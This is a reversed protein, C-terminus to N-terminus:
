GEYLNFHWQVDFKDTLTAYCKSWFTKQPEMGVDGGTKLGDFWQRIKEESDTTVMLDIDNGKIFVAGPPFDSFQVESGEIVLFTFAIRDAFEAPIPFDPDPPIDGYANFRPKPVGFVSAYFEVAERCNGDFHLFASIM